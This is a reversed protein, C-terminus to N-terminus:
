RLNLDASVGFKGALKGLAAPDVDGVVNIFVAETDGGLVMLALGAIQDGDTKMFMHVRSDGENVKVTRQWQEDGLRQALTSVRERAAERDGEELEYVNVSIATLGDLMKALEPDEERSAEALFTVLPGGLMVEVKPEEGFLQTLNGFDVYGPKSPLGEMWDQALAPGCFLAALITAMITETLHKM